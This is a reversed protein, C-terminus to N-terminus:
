TQAVFSRNDQWRIEFSDAVDFECVAMAGDCLLALAFISKLSVGAPKRKGGLLIRVDAPPGFSVGGTIAGCVDLNGCRIVYEAMM